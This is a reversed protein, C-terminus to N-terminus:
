KAVAELLERQLASAGESQNVSIAVALGSPCAFALTGWFGHHGLCREADLRIMSVGLGYPEDSGRPVDPVSTMADLSSRREFVRGGVLAAYFRAVDPLTAVLGGGGYLDFSPDAAYTDVDGAYQHARPPTKAPGRSGELWTEELGLRAFGLLERYADGLALGSTREVIEALLLYGTDSYRFRSGPPGVPDGLQTARELLQRPSWHRNLDGLVAEVFRPDSAYDWLGATHNALQRISIADVDYGDRRLLSSSDASLRDGIAQDLDLRGLEALRLVSAATYTKTVSALRVAHGPTLPTTSGRAVVGSAGSWSWGSPSTVHLAVGPVAPNNRVLADLRQQLRAGAEPGPPPAALTTAGAM